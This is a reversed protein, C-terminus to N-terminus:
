LAAAGSVVEIIEKTIAAQRIKNMKLTLGDIVETANKTAMDMAAMRAAHEAASSELLAQLIIVELYKPLLRDFIVAPEPEYIYDLTQEVSAEPLRELPLLRRVVINQALASKFENYIIYVADLNGKLYADITHQAIVNAFQPEVKRFVNLYKETITYKRKRFYEYGKRGVLHLSLDLRKRENLFAVAAKILNSNFAGALGKDSTVVMLEVNQDGKVKLLPHEEPNARTALSALMEIMTASYPRSALMVEQARRLKAGSVLKMARTIQRTNRVSRIRRRLDILAAM